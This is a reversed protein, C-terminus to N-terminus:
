SLPVVAPFPVSLLGVATRVHYRTRGRKEIVGRVGAYKGAVRLAVASGVPLAGLAALLAPDDPTGGDCLEDESWLPSEEFAAQAAAVSGEPTRTPARDAGETAPGGSLVRMAARYSASMPVERGHFRWTFLHAVDFQRACRVCSAPRSPQRHRTVAHGAPCTGLWPAPAQPAEPAVCRRGTSGIGLATARWTADHGHEPGVLAHAIEHLITERVQSRGYLVTLPRSLSITRRDFRCLGARVKADDFDLAWDVLGHEALLERGMRRAEQLEM